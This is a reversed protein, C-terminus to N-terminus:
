CVSVSMGNPQWAGSADRKFLLTTGTGCSLLMVGPRPKPVPGRWFTVSATDGHVEARRLEVYGAPLTAEATQPVDKMEVVPRLAAAAERAEKSLQAGAVITETAPVSQLALALVDRLPSPAAATTSCATLLLALPLLALRRM